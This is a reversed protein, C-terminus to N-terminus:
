RYPRGSANPQGNANAPAAGPPGNASKAASPPASIGMPGLVPLRSGPAVFQAMVAAQTAVYVTCYADQKDFFYVTAKERKNQPDDLNAGGSFAVGLRRDPTQAWYMGDSQQIFAGRRCLHSLANDAKAIKQISDTFSYVRYTQGFRVRPPITEAPLRERVKPRMHGDDDLRLRVGPEGACVSPATAVIAGCLGTLGAMFIVIRLGRM